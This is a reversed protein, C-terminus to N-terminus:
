KVEQEFLSLFFDDVRLEGHPINNYCYMIWYRDIETVIEYELTAEYQPPLDMSSMDEQYVTSGLQVVRGDGMSLTCSLTPAADSETLFDTPLWKVGVSGWVRYRADEPVNQAAVLSRGKQLNWVQDITQEAKAPIVLALLAIAILIRKM